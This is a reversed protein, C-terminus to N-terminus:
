LLAAISTVPIFFKYEGTETKLPIFGMKDRYFPVLTEDKAEVMVAYIGVADAAAYAIRLAHLVLQTGMGRGAIRKDVALRGLTICATERYPEQKQYQRTMTSKAYSGGAITYFGMVEPIDDDTVLLYAKLVNAAHQAALQKKLFHDLEPRGCYFNEADFPKEPSFKVIELKVKGM